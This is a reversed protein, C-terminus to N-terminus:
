GLMGRLMATGTRLYSPRSIRDIEAESLSFDFVDLNERLHARSTSRAVAAVNRHHTAWRLAVQAPSKGYTRGIRALVDDGLIAGQALPSYATLLLDHEQCYRLLERQPYFPHFLVQDTFIPADSLRRARDLRDVGFNSVGVHRTLGDDRAANMADLVDELDALPNPWHLLLLDVRDVHLKALSEHVSALVDDYRRNTPNVKTTLFVDERDVTSDAIARGVERENGYAQATDVHRYGVELATSVADYCTSGSLQWTGMGIKPITEGQIEVSDEPEVGSEATRSDATM